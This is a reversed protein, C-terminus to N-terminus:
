LITPSFTANFWEVQGSKRRYVGVRSNAIDIEMFSITPGSPLDEKCSLWFPANQAHAVEAGAVSVLLWLASLLKPFYVPKNSPTAWPVPLGIRQEDISKVHRM